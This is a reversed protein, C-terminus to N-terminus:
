DLQSFLDTGYHKDLAKAIARQARVSVGKVFLPGLHEIVEKSENADLHLDLSVNFKLMKNGNEGVVLEPTLNVEKDM